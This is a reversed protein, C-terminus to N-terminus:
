SKAMVHWWHSVNVQSWYHILACPVTNRKYVITYLTSVMTGAIFAHSVIISRALNPCDRILPQITIRNERSFKTNLLLIRSVRSIKYKWISIISQAYVLSRDQIKSRACIFALNFIKFFNTSLSISSFYNKMYWFYLSFRHSGEPPLQLKLLHARM